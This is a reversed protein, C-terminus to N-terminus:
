VQFYKCLKLRAESSLIDHQRGYLKVAPAIAPAVVGTAEKFVDHLGSLSTEDLSKYNKFVLALIGEVKDSM